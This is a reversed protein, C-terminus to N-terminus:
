TFAFTQKVTQLQKQQGIVVTITGRWLSPALIWSEQEAANKFDTITTRHPISQMQM